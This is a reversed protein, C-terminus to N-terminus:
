WLCYCGGRFKLFTRGCHYAKYTTRKYQCLSELAYLNHYGSIKTRVIINCHHHYFIYMSIPVWDVWQTHTNKTAIKQQTKKRTSELFKSLVKRSHFLRLICDVGQFHCTPLDVVHFSPWILIHWMELNSSVYRQSSTSSLLLRKM